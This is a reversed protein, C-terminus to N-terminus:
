KEKHNLAREVFWFGVMAVVMTTYADPLLEGRRLVSFTLAGFGILTLVPRVISRIIELKGM